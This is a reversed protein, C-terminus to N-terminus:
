RVPTPPLEASAFSAMVPAGHLYGYQVVVLVNSQTEGVPRPDGLCPVDGYEGVVETVRIVDHVTQLGEVHQADHAFARWQRPASTSLMRRTSLSRGRPRTVAASSFAMFGVEHSMLVDRPGITLPSARIWASRDFDMAPAASSTNSMSGRGVSWGSRVRGLTNAVGCM